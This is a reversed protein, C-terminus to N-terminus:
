QPLQGPPKTHVKIHGKGILFNRYAGVVADWAQQAVDAGATIVRGDEDIIAFSAPRGDATTVSLGHGADACVDCHSAEAAHEILKPM